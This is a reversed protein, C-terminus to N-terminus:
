NNEEYQQSELETLLESAYNQLEDNHIKTEITLVKSLYANFAIIKRDIIVKYPLPIEKSIEAIIALEDQLKQITNITQM